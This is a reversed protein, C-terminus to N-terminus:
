RSAPGSDEGRVGVLDGVEVGGLEQAGREQAAGARIGVEGVQVGRLHAPARPLDSPTGQLPRGLGQGAALLEAGGALRGLSM